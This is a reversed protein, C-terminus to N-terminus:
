SFEIYEISRKWGKHRRLMDQIDDESMGVQWAVILNNEDRICLEFNRKTKLKKMMEGETILLHDPLFSSM